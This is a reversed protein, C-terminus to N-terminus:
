YKKSSIIRITSLNKTMNPSNSKVFYHANLCPKHDLEKPGGYYMTKQRDGLDISDLKNYQVNINTQSRKIVKNM